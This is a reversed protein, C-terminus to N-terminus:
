AAIYTGSLQLAVAGTGMNSATLQTGPAGTTQNHAYLDVLKSNPRVHAFQAGNTAFGDGYSVSLASYGDLTSGNSAAATFPLGGVRLVGSASGLTTADTQIWMQVHVLKGVKVYRGGTAANYTISTFGTGSPVFTPTFEGSEYGSIDEISPLGVTKLM